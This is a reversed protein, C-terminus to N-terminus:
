SFESDMANGHDILVVEEKQNILLNPNGGLAGLKRDENRIWWDFLLVETQLTSNVSEVQGFEIDNSSAFERSGYGEGYGFETTDGGSWASIDKGVRVVRGEPTPLGMEAALYGFIWENIKEEPLANGLKVFYWYGDAGRCCFPCSSVGTLPREGIEVIEVPDSM